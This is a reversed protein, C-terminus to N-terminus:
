FFLFFFLNTIPRHSAIVTERYSYQHHNYVVKLICGDILHRSLLRSPICIYLITPFLRRRSIKIIYIRKTKSVHVRVRFCNCGIILTIADGDTRINSMWKVTSDDKRSRNTQLDISLMSLSIFFLIHSFHQNMFPSSIILYDFPFINVIATKIYRYIM